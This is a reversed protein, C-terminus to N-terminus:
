AIRASAASGLGAVELASRIERYKKAMAESAVAWVVRLARQVDVPGGVARRTPAASECTAPSVNLRLREPIRGRGRLVSRPRWRASVVIWSALPSSTTMLPRSDAPCLSRRVGLWASHECMALGRRAYRHRDLWVNLSSPTPSVPTTAYLDNPRISSTAHSRISRSSSTRCRSGRRASSARSTTIACARECPSM